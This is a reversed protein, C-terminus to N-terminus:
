LLELNRFIKDNGLTAVATVQNEMDPERFKIYKIGKFNLKDIWHLLKKENKIGLYVLTGNQWQQDHLLWEAVVHGAQVAIHSSTPLDKRVLVYLKKSM